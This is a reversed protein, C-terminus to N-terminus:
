ASLSRLQTPMAVSYYSLSSIWGNLSEAGGVESGLVLQSLGIPLAGATDTVPSEGNVSLAYDNLAYAIAVKRNATSPGITSVLTAVTAAGSRIVSSIQGGSNQLRLVIRNNTTGDSIDYVDKAVANTASIAAEVVITGQTANWFGSFNAGTISAIDAARTVAASSTSIVSTAFAGLELQPMGIRLTIDIAQADAINIKILPRIFATTGGSLTSTANQRQTNLPASTAATLAGAQVTLFSIGADYEYLYFQSNSLGNYSGGVLRTYVSRNWVQGSTAATENANLFTIDVSGAGSSTGFIRLDIYSIGSETGTGVVSRSLGTTTVFSTAWTNTPMTGPTGAVAGVMTNNRISNTRAEEILLGRAALTSPDYDFRATNTSASTLTGSSNFYNAASARTFTIRSDLSGRLFDFVFSPPVKAGRNFAFGRGRNRSRSGVPFM